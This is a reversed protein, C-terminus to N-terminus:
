AAKLIEAKAWSNLSTGLYHAIDFFMPWCISQGLIEHNITDSNGELLNLPIGKLKAHETPTFLRDLSSDIPHTLMPETSRYKHYQRGICGCKSEKGTLRQRKFGKGAARDRVEKKDLYDLNRYRTSDLPIPELISAIDDEKVRSPKVDDLNISPLGKSLAIVGLRKRDELCGFENGGFTREHTNYGLNGLVSRIVAMSATNSYSDVNEIIVAVPQVSMVFNLFSYFMAGAKDHSEAFTLKNKTRGSLSAGTCPIGAILVDCTTTRNKLMNVHSIDGELLISQEDFLEPNNRLSSDLYKSDIECAIAVRSAIGTKKFGEHCANDMIGGGHFLSCVDFPIGNLIKHKAKNERDIRNREIEHISIVIKNNRLEARILQGEEFLNSLEQCKLDIISKTPKSDDNLYRSSVKYTGNEDIIIELADDNAAPLINFRIGPKFGHREIKRGEMWLRKSGRHSGIKTNVITLM